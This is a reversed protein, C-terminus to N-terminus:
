RAKARQYRVFFGACITFLGMVGVLPLKSATHPLQAAQADNQVPANADSQSAANQYQPIPPQNNQAM